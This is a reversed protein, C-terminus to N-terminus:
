FKSFVSLVNYFPDVNTNILKFNVKQCMNPPIGAMVQRINTKDAYVRDKTYGWLLFDLPTLDCSRPPWNFDGRCSIVCGPFTEQLLAM